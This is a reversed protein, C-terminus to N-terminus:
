YKIQLSDLENRSVVPLKGAKVKKLIFSGVKEAEKKSKFSQKGSIAPIFPQDIKTTGNIIIKYGWGDNIEYAEVLIKEQNNESSEKLNCSYALLFFGTM